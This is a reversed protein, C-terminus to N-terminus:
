RRLLMSVHRVAVAKGFTVHEGSVGDKPTQAGAPHALHIQRLVGPQGAAVGQLDQGAVQGAVELEALAEVPLGVQGGTEVVLVDDADVVAAFVFPLQPDRHVVDLAGVGSLQQAAVIRGPHGFGIDDLDDRRDGVREIVGVGAPQQMTVDFGGVDQEPM